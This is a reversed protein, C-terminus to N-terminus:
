KYSQITSIEGAVGTNALESEAKTKNFIFGETRWSNFVARLVMHDGYKQFQLVGRDAQSPKREVRGTTLLVRHIRTESTSRFDAYNNSNSVNVDYMGAPLVQDGALFAFPIDIRMFTTDAFAPVAVTLLALGAAVLIGRRSNLTTM